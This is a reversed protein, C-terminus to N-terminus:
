RPVLVVDGAALGDARVGANTGSVGLVVVIRWEATGDARQVQVAYTGDLRSLLAETPVLLVGDARAVDIKVKVTAGTAVGRITSTPTIVAQVVVADGRQTSRLVTVTGTPGSGITVTLGPIVVPQDAAPVDIVVQQTAAAVTVITDGDGVTDGVVASVSSVTTATPLYVVSGLDVTGTAAIGSGRQWREVMAKTHADFREDVSVTKDPDYGLSALSLELQQVDPGDASGVSLTRWAPLTGALAVVPRGDVTYIVDGLEIVAGPTTVSTITQTVRPTTATGTAVAGTAAGSRTTPAGSRGSRNGGSPVSSGPAVTITPTPTTVSPPCSPVPTGPVTSTAAPPISIPTPTPTPSATTTTTGVASTSTVGVTTTSTTTSTTTTSTSTSTTTSPTSTTTTSTSTTTTSDPATSTTADASAPVTTPSPGDCGASQVRALAAAATTTSSTVSGRAGNAAATPNAGASSSAQGEIRHLVAISTSLQVTGDVQESTRLSGSTVKAPKLISTTAGARDSAGTDRSVLWTATAAGGLLVIAAIAIRLPRRRAM